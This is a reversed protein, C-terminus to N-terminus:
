FDMEESDEIGDELYEGASRKTNEILQDITYEKEFIVEEAFGQRDTITLKISDEADVVDFAFFVPVSTGPEIDKYSYDFDDLSHIYAKDLEKGGQFADCIVASNLSLTEDSNNTFEGVCLVVVDDRNFGIITSDEVFKFNSSLDVEEGGSLDFENEYIVKGDFSKFDTLSFEFPASEDNISYIYRVGISSDPRIEAYDDEPQSERLPHNFPLWASQAETTGSFAKDRLVSKCAANSHSNNTFTMDIVIIPAGEDDVTVYYKDLAIDFESESEKKEVTELDVVEDIILVEKPKRKKTFAFGKITIEADEDVDVLEYAKQIIKSEGPAIKTESEIVYPNGDSALYAEPLAKGDALIEVNWLISFSDAYEETNNTAEFNFLIVDNDDYRTSCTFVEDLELAYQADKRVENPDEGCATLAACLAIIMAVLGIRFKKM